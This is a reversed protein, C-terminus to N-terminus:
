SPPCLVDERRLGGAPKPGTAAGQGVLVVHDAWALAEDVDHVAALVTAGGAALRKLHQLADRRRETDLNAVPEDAVVVEPRQVLMRAFAVRQQEGGSLRRAQDDAKGSLGVTHLAEDAEELLRRSPIGALTRLWTERRLGGLAANQRATANRVLGLHQPIYGIRGARVADHALTGDQLLVRGQQPRRLGAALRLLTTKGSGNPGLVATVAGSPVALQVDSLVRNRGYAHAVGEFRLGQM